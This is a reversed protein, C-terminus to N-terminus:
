FYVFFFVIVLAPSSGAVKDTNVIRSLWSCWGALQYILHTEKTRLALFLNLDLQVFVVVFSAKNNGGVLTVRM